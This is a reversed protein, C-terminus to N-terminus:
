EIDKGGLRKMRKRPIVIFLINGRNELTARNLNIDPPIRIETKYMSFTGTRCDIGLDDFCLRRCLKATLLISDEDTKQLNISEADVFPMDVIINVNDTTVFVNSLPELYSEAINWGPHERFFREIMHNMFEDVEELLERIPDMGRRRKRTYSM